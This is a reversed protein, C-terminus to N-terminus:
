EKLVGALLEKIFLIPEIGVVYAVGIVPSATLIIIWWMKLWGLSQSFREIECRVNLHFRVRSRQDAADDLDVHLDDFPELEQKSRYVRVM